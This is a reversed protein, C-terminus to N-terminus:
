LTISPLNRDTPVREGDSDLLSPCDNRPDRTQASSILSQYAQQYRSLPAVSKYRSTIDVICSLEKKEGRPKRSMVYVM